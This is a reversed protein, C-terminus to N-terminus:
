GGDCVRLPVVRLICLAFLRSALPGHLLMYDWLILRDVDSVSDRIVYQQYRVRERWLARQAEGESFGSLVYVYGVMLKM